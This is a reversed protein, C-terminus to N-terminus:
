GSVLEVMSGSIITLVKIMLQKVGL